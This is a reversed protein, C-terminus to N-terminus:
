KKARPARLLFWFLALAQLPVAVVFVLWSYPFSFTCWVALAASWILLSVSLTRLLKGGWLASFVILLVGCAPLAWIFALWPRLVDAGFFYLFSFVVTAAFWVLLCSMAAVIARRRGKGEAPVKKEGTHDSVLYDLTVGYMRALECLVAVDPLSEGREWKSVAKDSYNLKEALQLQTLGAAKRCNALNRAVIAKLEEM